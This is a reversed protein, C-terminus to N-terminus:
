VPLLILVSYTFLTRKILTIRTRLFATNTHTRTRIMKITPQNNTTSGGPEAYRAGGIHLPLLHFLQVHEGVIQEDVHELRGVGGAQEHGLLVFSEDFHFRFLLAFVNNAEVWQVPLVRLVCRRGGLRARQLEDLISQRTDIPDM